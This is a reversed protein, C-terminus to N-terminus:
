PHRVLPQTKRGAADRAWYLGAPAPKGRVLGNWTPVGDVFVVGDGSGAVVRGAVDYISIPPQLFGLKVRGWSPNPVPIAFGRQAVEAPRIGSVAARVFFRAAPPTSRTSNGGRDTAAVGWGYWYGPELVLSDIVCETLRFALPSSFGVNTAITATYVIEDGEEPDEAPSWRLCLSDSQVTDGDAPELLLFSGPPQV